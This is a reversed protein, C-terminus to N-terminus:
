TDPIVPRRRNSLPTGMMSLSTSPGHALFVNDAQVAAQVPIAGSRGTLSPLRILSSSSPGSEASDPKQTGKFQVLALPAVIAAIDGTTGDSSVMADSTSSSYKLPQARKRRHSRSWFRDVFALGPPDTQSEIAVTSPSQTFPHLLSSLDRSAIETQEAPNPATIIVQTQTGSSVTDPRTAIQLQDHYASSAFRDARAQSDTMTEQMKLELSQNAALVSDLRLQLSLREGEMVQSQKAWSEINASNTKVQHKLDLSIKSCQQVRVVLLRELETEVASAATIQDTLQAIQQAHLQTINDIAQYRAEREQDVQEQVQHLATAADTRLLTYETQLQDYSSRSQSITQKLDDVQRLLRTNTDIAMVLDQRALVLRTSEAEKQGSLVDMEGQVRRMEQEGVRVQEVLGAIQSNRAMIQNNVQAIDQQLIQEGKKLIAMMEAYEDRQVAVSRIEYRLQSCDKFHQALTMKLQEKGEGVLSVLTQVRNELESRERDLRDALQRTDVLRHHEERSRRLDDARCRRINFLDEGMRLFEKRMQDCQRTREGLEGSIQEKEENLARTLDSLEHFQRGVDSLKANTSALETTKANLEVTLSNVSSQLCVESRSLTDIMDTLVSCKQELPKRLSIEMELRSRNQDHDHRLIAMEQDRALVQVQMDGITGTLTRNSDSASQLSRALEAVREELNRKEGSLRNNSFELEMLRKENGAIVEECKKRRAVVANVQADSETKDKRMRNLDIEMQSMREQWTVIRNALDANAIQGEAITARDVIAAAKQDMIIQELSSKELSQRSIVDNLSQLKQAFETKTQETMATMRQQREHFEQFQEQLDDRLEGVVDKAKVLVFRDAIIWYAKWFRRVIDHSNQSGQAIDGMLEQLGSSYVFLTRYFRDVNNESLGAQILHTRSIGLRDLAKRDTTYPKAHQAPPALPTPLLADIRDSLEILPDKGIRDNIWCEVTQRPDSRYQHLSLLNSHDLSADSDGFERVPPLEKQKSSFWKGILASAGNPRRHDTRGPIISQM